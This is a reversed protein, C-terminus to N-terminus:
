ASINGSKHLWPDGPSTGMGTRRSPKDLHRVVELTEEGLKLMRSTGFSLQGWMFPASMLFAEGARQRWLTQPQSGQLRQVVKGPWVHYHTVIRVEAEFWLFGGWWYWSVSTVKPLYPTIRRTLVWHVLFCTRLTPIELSLMHCIFLCVLLCVFLVQCEMLMMFCRRQHWPSLHM